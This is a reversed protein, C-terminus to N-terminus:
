LLSRQSLHLVGTTEWEVYRLSARGVVRRTRIALIIPMIVDRGEYITHTLMSATVPILTYNMLEM